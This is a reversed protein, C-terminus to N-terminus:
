PSSSAVGFFFSRVNVWIMVLLPLPGALSGFRIPNVSGFFSCVRHETPHLTQELVVVKQQTVVAQEVVALVVVALHEVVEM